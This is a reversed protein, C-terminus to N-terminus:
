GVMEEVQQKYEEYLAFGDDLLNDGVCDMAKENIGDALVELMMGREGALRKLSQEGKGRLVLTLAALETLSLSAKLGAWGDSAPAPAAVAAQAPIEPPEPAAVFPAAQEEAVILKEQTALAERKIASLAERDVRVVTKTSEKYFDGVADTILSGLTLGQRKLRGILAHKDARINASLKPKYKVAARLAGEMQKLIYGMMQRSDESIVVSNHEWRNHTCVYIDNKSLEVRRDPQDAWAYFLADKFPWWPSMKKSPQLISVDHEVSHGAFVQRLREITFCFCDKILKAREPAYFKSRRIDYKSIGCYLGFEDETDALEPYRAALDNQRVFEAFPQPLAYEYYVHYDKLWRCVYSDLTGDCERFARWFRMLRDLGDQPGDVGINGLMEYIYLFAYSPSVGAVNGERVRARWTFYTRLQDYSMTQYTPFYQSFPASGPYDDVFDKMLQGQKYFIIPDNYLVQRDLFKSHDLPTRYPRAIDRMQKFLDRIGDRQEPEGIRQSPRALWGTGPAAGPDFEMEYFVGDSLSVPVAPEPPKSEAQPSPQEAGDAQVQRRGPIKFAEYKKQPTSSDM